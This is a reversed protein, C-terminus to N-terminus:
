HRCHSRFSDLPPRGKTTIKTPSLTRGCCVDAADVQPRAEGRSVAKTQRAGLYSTSRVM